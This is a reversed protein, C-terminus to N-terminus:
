AITQRGTKLGRGANAGGHPKGKLLAHRQLLLFVIELDLELNWIASGPVTWLLVM